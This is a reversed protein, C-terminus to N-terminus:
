EEEPLYGEGDCQPCSEINGDECDNIDILGLTGCGPCDLM